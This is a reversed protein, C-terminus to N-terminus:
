NRVQQLAPAGSVPLACCGWSLVFTAGSQPSALHLPMKVARDPHNQVRVLKVVEAKSLM